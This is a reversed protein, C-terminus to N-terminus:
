SSALEGAAVGCAGGLEDRMQEHVPPERVQDDVRCPEEGKGGRNCAPDARRAEEGEKKKAAYTASEQEEWEVGSRHDTCGPGYRAEHAGGQAKQEQGQHGAIHRREGAFRTCGQEAQRGREAVPANHDGDREPGSEVDDGRPGGGPEQWPFTDGPLSVKPPEEGSEEGKAEEVRLRRNM